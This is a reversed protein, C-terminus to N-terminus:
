GSLPKSPRKWIVVSSDGMAEGWKSGLRGESDSTRRERMRSFVMRREPARSVSDSQRIAPWLTQDMRASTCMRECSPFRTSAAQIQTKAARCCKLFGSVLESPSFTM